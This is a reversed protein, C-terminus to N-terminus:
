ASSPMRSKQIHSSNLRTSKRDRAFEAEKMGTAKQLVASLLHMGPSCYAFRSGPEAAMPLDLAFQVWDASAKMEDLTLEDHDATCDLGSSMSALDRVTIRGKRADLNRITRDPFFSVLRDDLRLRGQDAAIAVLTTTVSKTVSQLQHVTTGDYPYFYADLILEGNRILLLSHISLGKAQIARLGDALLASDLGQAEPASTRWGDTPWYAPTPAPGKAVGCAAALLLASVLAGTHAVVPRGRARHGHRRM